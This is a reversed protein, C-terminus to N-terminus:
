RVRPSRAHIYASALFFFFFFLGRVLGWRFFCVLGVFFGLSSPVVSRLSLSLPSNSVSTDVMCLLFFMM